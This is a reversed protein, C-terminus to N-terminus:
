RKEWRVAVFAGTDSGRGAREIRHWEDPPDEKGFHVATRTIGGVPAAALLEAPSRFIVRNFVSDPDGQADARRRAAWPSLSNLTAVVVAGGRKTVRFLETVARKADAIFEVATVSVTKDFVCDRFPLNIMDAAVGRFVRPVAKDKARRLMSFSVDLEVVDAERAIFKATFIGTGSGADLLVEGRRPLLLELILEREYGLVAKGLPTEFWLDYRDPWEDFLRKATM